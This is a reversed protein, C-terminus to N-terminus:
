GGRSKTVRSRDRVRVFKIDGSCKAHCGKNIHIPGMTSTRRGLIGEQTGPGGTVANGLIHILVDEITTSRQSAPHVFVKREALLPVQLGGAASAAAKAM